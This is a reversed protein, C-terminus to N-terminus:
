RNQQRSGTIARIIAGRTWGEGCKFVKRNNDHTPGAGQPNYVWILSLITHRSTAQVANKQQSGKM